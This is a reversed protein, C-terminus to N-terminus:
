GLILDHLEGVGDVVEEGGHPNFFVLGFLGRDIVSMVELARFIKKSRLLIDTGNTKGVHLFKQQM